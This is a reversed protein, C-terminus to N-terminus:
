LSLIHLSCYEGLATFAKSKKGHCNKKSLKQAEKSMEEVIKLFPFRIGAFPCSNFAGGGRKSSDASILESVGM